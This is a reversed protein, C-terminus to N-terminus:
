SEATNELVELEVVVGALFVTQIQFSQVVRRYKRFLKGPFVDSIM